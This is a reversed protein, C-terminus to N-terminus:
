NEIIKESFRRSLYLLKRQIAVNGFNLICVGKYDKYTKRGLTRMDLSVALFNNIPIKLIGSWYKKLLKPKQDARLHLNCKISNRSFGYLKEMAKIFFRLLQPDSNGIGTSGNKFGEGLYLMALALELISKDNIDLKCMTDLAENEAKKLREAKQRNHWAVANIRSLVLAKRKRKDLANRQSESLKIGRFWGSLTSRPIGLIKEVDKLSKGRRRLSVAKNKLKFWKSIM